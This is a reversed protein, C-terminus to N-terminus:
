SALGSQGYDGQRESIKGRSILHCLKDSLSTQGAIIKIKNGWNKAGINRLIFKIIATPHTGELYPGV